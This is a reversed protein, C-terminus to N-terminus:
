PRPSLRQESSCRGPVPVYPEQIVYAALEAIVSGVPSPVLVTRTWYLSLAPLTLASVSVITSSAVAGAPVIDTLLLAAEVALVAAVTFEETVSARDPM